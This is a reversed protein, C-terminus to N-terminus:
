RAKAIVARSGTASVRPVGRITNRSALPKPRFVFSKGRALLGPHQELPILAGTSARTFHGIPAIPWVESPYNEPPWAGMPRSLRLGSSASGVDTNM